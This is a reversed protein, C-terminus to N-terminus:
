YPLEDLDLPEVFSGCEPCEIGYDAEPELDLLQDLYETLEAHCVMCYKHEVEFMNQTKLREEQERKRM